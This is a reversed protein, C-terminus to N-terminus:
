EGRQPWIYNGVEDFPLGLELSVVADYEVNLTLWHQENFYADFFEYTEQQWSRRSKRLLYQVRDVPKGIIKSSRYSLNPHACRIYGLKGDTREYFTLRLKLHNYQYSLSGEDEEDLGVRDPQGLTDIVDNPLLGFVVPGIGIGPYLEM